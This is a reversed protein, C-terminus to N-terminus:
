PRISDRTSPRYDATEDSRKTLAHSLLPEPRVMIWYELFALIIGCKLPEFLKM